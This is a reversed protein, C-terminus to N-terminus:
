AGLRWPPEGHQEALRVLPVCAVQSIGIAPNIVTACNERANEGRLQIYASIPKAPTAYPPSCYDREFGWVHLLYIITHVPTNQMRGSRVESTNPSRPKEVTQHVGMQVDSKYHQLTAVKLDVSFRAGVMPENTNAM